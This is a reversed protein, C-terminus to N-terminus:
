HSTSGHSEVVVRDRGAQKARYLHQDARELLLANNDDLHLVSIGFSSTVQVPGKDSEFRLAKVALRM